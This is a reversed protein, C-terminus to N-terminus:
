LILVYHNFYLFSFCKKTNKRTRTYICILLFVNCNFETNILSGMSIKKLIKSFVLISFFTFRLNNFESETFNCNGLRLKFVTDNSYINYICYLVSYLFVVFNLDINLYTNGLLKRRLFYM